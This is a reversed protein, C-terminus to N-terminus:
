TMQPADGTDIHADDRSFFLGPQNVQPDRAPRIDAAPLREEDIHAPAAGFDNDTILLLIAKEVRELEPGNAQRAHKKTGAVAGGDRGRPVGADLTVNARPRYAGEFAQPLEGDLQRDSTRACDEVEGFDGHAADM